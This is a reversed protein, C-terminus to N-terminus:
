KKQKNKFAWLTPLYALNKKLYAIWYRPHLFMGFCCIPHSIDWFKKPTVERLNYSFLAAMVFLSSIWFLSSYFNNKAM